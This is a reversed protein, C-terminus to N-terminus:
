WFFTILSLANSIISECDWQEDEREVRVYEKDSDSDSDEPIKQLVKERLVNDVDDFGEDNQNITIVGRFISM